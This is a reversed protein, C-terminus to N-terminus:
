CPRRLGARVPRRDSRRGGALICGGSRRRWVAGSGADYGEAWDVGATEGVIVLGELLEVLCEIDGSFFDPAQREAVLIVLLDAGVDGIDLVGASAPASGDCCGLEEVDECAFCGPDMEVNCAHGPVLFGFGVDGFAGAAEADAADQLPYPAVLLLGATQPTTALHIDCLTINVKKSKTCM